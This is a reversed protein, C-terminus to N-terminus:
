AALTAWGGGCGADLVLKNKWFEKPLPVSNLLYDSNQEAKEKEENKTIKGIQIKNIVEKLYFKFFIDYFHGDKESLNVRDYFNFFTIGSFKGYNVTLENNCRCPKFKSNVILKEGCKPCVFEILEKQM